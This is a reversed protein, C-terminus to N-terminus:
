GPRTTAWILGCMPLAAGGLQGIIHHPDLPLVQIGARAGITSVVFVAAGVLFLPWGARKRASSWRNPRTATPRARSPRPRPLPRRSEPLSGTPPPCAVSKTRRKPTAM